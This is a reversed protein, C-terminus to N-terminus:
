GWSDPVYNSINVKESDRRTITIGIYTRDSDAAGYGNFTADQIIRVNKVSPNLNYITSGSTSNTLHSRSHRIKRGTRYSEPAM